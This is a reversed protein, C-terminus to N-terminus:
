DAALWAHKPFQVGVLPASCDAQLNGVADRFAQQFISGVQLDQFPFDLRRSFSQCARCTNASGAKFLKDGVQSSRSRLLM